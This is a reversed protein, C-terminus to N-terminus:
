TVDIPPIQNKLGCTGEDFLQFKIQCHGIEMAFARLVEVTAITPTRLKMHNTNRTGRQHPLISKM